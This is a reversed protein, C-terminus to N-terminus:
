QYFHYQDKGREKSVYLAQDARKCLVSPDMGHEPALSIGISVTVMNRQQEVEQDVIEKVMSIIRAATHEVEGKNTSPMIIVFEDGGLRITVDEKRAISGIGQAVCKLLHDGRDHGLEDNVLKFNDLDIMLLATSGKNNLLVTELIEDFAARNKLGTLSDHFALYMPRAFWRSIILALMIAAIIATIIQIMFTRQNAELIAELDHENYIIELVKNRTAGIDVTSTYPVYLYVAPEGKWEERHSTTQGTRLAEEFARRRDATLIHDTPNSGLTLGGPNLVNIEDLSPNKQVLHDITNLFNFQQFIDGESLSYGLEIIYQKDSTAMYSYKKLQGSRQEIDIGDHYFGGANRREDLTQAFKQCCSTFDLGIDILTSSHTIINNKNLIYVDFSLQQKLAQFDWEDFDPNKDYLESLMQSDEKMQVARDEGFIFLAKEVMEIAYKVMEVNQEVQAQKYDIAQEELRFQNTTALTISILLAFIVLTVTLKLRFNSKM